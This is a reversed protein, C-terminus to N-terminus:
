GTSNSFRVNTSKEYDLRNELLQLGYYSPHVGSEWQVSFLKPFFYAEQLEWVELEELGFGALFLSCAEEGDQSGVAVKLGWQNLFYCGITHNSCYLFFFRILTFTMHFFLYQDLDSQIFSASLLRFVSRELFEFIQCHEFPPIGKM